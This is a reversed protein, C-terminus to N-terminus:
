TLLVEGHVKLWTEGPEGRGRIGPRRKKKETHGIDSKSWRTHKSVQKIPLNKRMKEWARNFSFGKVEKARRRGNLEGQDRKSTGDSSAPGSGIM